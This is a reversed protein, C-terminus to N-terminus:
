GKLSSYIVVGSTDIIRIHQINKNQSLRVVVEQVNKDGGRNMEEDLGYRLIDLTTELM